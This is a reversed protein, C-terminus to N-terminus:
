PTQIGTCCDKDSSESSSVDIQTVPPLGFVSRIDPKGDKGKPKEEEKSKEDDKAKEEEKPKEDEEKKGGMMSRGREREKRKGEGLRRM